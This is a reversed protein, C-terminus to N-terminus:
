EAAAKGPRKDIKAILEEAQKSLDEAQKVIDSLDVRETVTRQSLLQRLANLRQREQHTLEEDAAKGSLTELESLESQRVHSFKLASRTLRPLYINMNKALDARKIVQDVLAADEGELDTYSTVIFVPLESNVSRLYEALQHGTYEVAIGTTPDSNEQLKEDALIAAVDNEAIFSPYDALDPFPFSDLVQWDGRDELGMRLLKSVGARYDARDEILLINPM